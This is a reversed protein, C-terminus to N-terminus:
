TVEGNEKEELRKKEIKEVWKVFESNRNWRCIKWTVIPSNKFYDQDMIQKFIDEERKNHLTINHVSGTLSEKDKEFWKEVTLRDIEIVHKAALEETLQRQLKASEEGGTNFM